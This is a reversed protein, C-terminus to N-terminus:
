FDTNIFFKQIIFLYCTFYETYIHVSLVVFNGLKLVDLTPLFSSMIQITQATHTEPCVRVFQCCNRRLELGKLAVFRQIFIILLFRFRFQRITQFNRRASM